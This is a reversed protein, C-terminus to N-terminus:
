EDGQNVSNHGFLLLNHLNLQFIWKVQGIVPRIFDGYEFDFGLSFITAPEVDFHLDPFIIVEVLSSNEVPCFQNSFLEAFPHHVLLQFFGDADVDKIVVKYRIGRLNVTAIFYDIGSCAFIVPQVINKFQVIDFQFLKRFCVMFDLTRQIAPATKQRSRMLKVPLM